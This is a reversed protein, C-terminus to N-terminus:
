AGSVQEGGRPGRYVHARDALGLGCLQWISYQYEYLQRKELGFGTEPLTSASQSGLDGRAPVARTQRVRQDYLGAEIM